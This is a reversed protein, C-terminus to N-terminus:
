GKNNTANTSYRIYDRFDREFGNSHAFLCFNVDYVCLSIGLKLYESCLFHPHFSISIIRCEYLCEVAHISSHISHADCATVNVKLFYISSPTFLLKLAIWFLLYCCCCCYCYFTLLQKQTFARNRQFLFFLNM